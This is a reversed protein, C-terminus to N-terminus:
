FSNYRTAMCRYTYVCAAGTCPETQNLRSRSAPWAVAQMMISCAPAPVPEFLRWSQLLFNLRPARLTAAVRPLWASAGLPAIARCLVDCRCRGQVHTLSVAPACVTALYLLSRSSSATHAAHLLRGAAHLLVRQVAATDDGAGHDADATWVSLWVSAAHHLVEILANLAILARFAALVAHWPRACCLVACSLVAHM